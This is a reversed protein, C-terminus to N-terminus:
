EAAMNDELFRQYNEASVIQTGDCNFQMRVISQVISITVNRIYYTPMDRLTKLSSIINIIEDQEMPEWAASRRAMINNWYGPLRQYIPNARLNNYMDRMLQIKDEYLVKPFQRDIYGRDIMKEVSHIEERLPDFISTTRIEGNNFGVFLKYTSRHLMLELLNPALTDIHEDVESKYRKRDFTTERLSPDGRIGILLNESNMGSASIISEKLVLEEFDQAQEYNDM